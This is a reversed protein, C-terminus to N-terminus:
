GKWVPEALGLHSRLTTGAYHTRFAGREQLLPVVQAVFEDLGGPAPPPALLFGDAASEAAGRVMAEAVSGPTGTFSPWPTVEIVTARISLGKAEALARWRAATGVPDGVGAPDPAAVHGPDVRGPAGAPLPDVAPLPGEPDYSSLDRGWVRELARLADQPSIRRRRLEAARERAEGESAGLVVAVEPMIRVEGPARGHAALRGSLDARCARCTAPTGHRRPVVVDASAAAFERDADGEGAQIVVPHGQPSRPVTFEGEITFHRGSHSFPRVRGDPTWSDWLERAARVSEVAREARDGRRNGDARLADDASVLHWAARGGSLHDLSALRRALEYPEGETACVSAALGVRDTVAALANLVTIPEPGGAAGPDGPRGRHGYPGPPHPRPAYPAYPASQGAAGPLLVFDFLGREATRAFREVPAFDAPGAPDGGGPVRAALHLPGRPSTM